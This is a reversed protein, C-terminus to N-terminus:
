QSNTTSQTRGIHTPEKQDHDKLGYTRNYPANRDLTEEDLDGVDNTGRRGGQLDIKQEQNADRNTQAARGTHTTEHQDIQVQKANKGM